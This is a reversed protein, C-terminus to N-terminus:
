GEDDRYHENDRWRAASRKSASCRASRQALDQGIWHTALSTDLDGAILEAERELMRDQWYNM